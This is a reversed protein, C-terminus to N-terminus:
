KRMHLFVKEEIICKSIFESWFLGIEYRVKRQKLREILVPTTKNSLLSDAYNANLGYFLGTLGQNLSNGSSYHHTFETSNESFAFLNPM